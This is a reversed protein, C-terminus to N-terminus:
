SVDRARFTAYAAALVAAAYISFLVIPRTMTLTTQQIARGFDGPERLEVPFGLMRPLLHQLLWPRLRGSRIAGLINDLILAYGFAIGIAGATNRTITALGTAIAAAFVALLSGRAWVGVLTWWLSWDTGELTGRLAAVPLFVIDLLALVIPVAVALLVASAIAKAALVRGRRPEWTLLTTTSGSGWDAGVFSAAIVFALVFLTVAVGRTADRMTDDYVFRKDYAPALEEVSQCGFVVKPSGPPAEAQARAEDTKCRAVDREAAARGANPDKSSQVFAIVAAAVLGSVVALALFRFLRRSVFRLMESRVLGIM